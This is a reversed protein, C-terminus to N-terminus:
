DTRFLGRFSAISSRSNILFLLAGVLLYYGILQNVQGSTFEYGQPPFTLQDVSGGATFVFITLGIGVVAIFYSLVVGFSLGEVGGGARNQMTRAEILALLTVVFIIWGYTIQELTYFDTFDFPIIGTEGLLQFALVVALILVAIRFLFTSLNTTETVAM